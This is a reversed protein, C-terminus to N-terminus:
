GLVVVVMFVLEKILIEMQSKLKPLNQFDEEFAEQSASNPIDTLSEVQSFLPHSDLRM